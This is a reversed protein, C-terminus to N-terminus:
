FGSDRYEKTVKKSAWFLLWFLAGRGGVALKRWDWLLGRTGHRAVQPECRGHVDVCQALTIEDSTKM